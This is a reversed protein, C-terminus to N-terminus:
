PTALSHIVGLHPNAVAAASQKRGSTDCSDTACHKNIGQSDLGPNSDQLDVVSWTCRSRGVSVTDPVFTSTILRVQVLVLYQRSQQDMYYDCHLTNRVLIVQM